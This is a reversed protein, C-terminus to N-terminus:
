QDVWLIIFSHEFLTPPFLLHSDVFSPSIYVSIHLSCVVATSQFWTLSWLGCGFSCYLLVGYHGAIFPVSQLGQILGYSNNTHVM